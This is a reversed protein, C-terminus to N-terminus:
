RWLARGLFKSSRLLGVQTTWKSLQHMIPRQDMPVNAELAPPRYGLANHPRNTNDHKRLNEIIVQAETLSCFVEGNLPEDRM